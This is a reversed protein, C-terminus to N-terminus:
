KEKYTFSLYCPEYEVLDKSLVNKDYHIFTDKVLQNDIPQTTLYTVEILWHTDGKLYYDGAIVDYLYFDNSIAGNIYTSFRHKPPLKVQTRKGMEDYLPLFFSLTFEYHKVNNFEESILTTIAYDQPLTLGKSSHEPMMRLYRKRREKANEIVENPFSWRPIYAAIPANATNLLSDVVTPEALAEDLKTPISSEISAVRDTDIIITEKKISLEDISQSLLKDQEEYEALTEKLIAIKQRLAKRNCELYVREDAPTM